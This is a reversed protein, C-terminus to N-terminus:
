EEHISKLCKAVPNFERFGQWLSTERFPPLALNCCGARGGGARRSAARLLARGGYTFRLFMHLFVHSAAFVYGYTFRLRSIICAVISLM